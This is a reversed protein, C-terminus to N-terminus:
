ADTLWEMPVLKIGDRWEPLGVVGDIEGWVERPAHDLVILQLKGNEKIVINGMTEFARRVAEVDEDRLKPEDENAVNQLQTSKPFYVQSPQDLILFSPVPNNKQSLYFQHLSLLVALHYSLWNSGSGIESLYDDREDGLVKITLDNIELSIPANPDEVDLGQLINGAKTNIVRLAQNKRLEIDKERLEKELNQVIEKLNNVEEVLESDSGLKRHLELASEINGIFREARRTSFQQERAEKSRSTLARKSLQISRLRETANSVESTVRQLERDFAAPVEKHTDAGIAAEVDSLRQVLVHLKQKASDSHSGCMPCDSEDNTNSLLWGSIKLRDRQMLLANEYQNVGVRLRNMEELRHRMTTLERSVLREENELKNLEDLADSITSVTVKLALDTQSIVEELHGIMQERSLQEQPKPVLGLEQAESYKSKLDALWQASIAQADKLEREKRRLLLRTRNLEFQKAMLESTVAGLVYPFIKRLKERHEYTNTKFFLVDPNAVVNQPQFTFAALDRFAPRGDFGSNEDGGSFDLNSLNALDDLMRKVAIVNTNKELRSPISTINEAELVYMDTTSRQNGPEKRALLKEGQETAVVIGFWECYRRITNVPISCSNSGLCYDIIPIVASKGTRSAGSIVNVKGLEFRITRPKFNKNRPWLIIGRIQFYM